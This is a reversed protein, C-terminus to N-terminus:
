IKNLLFGLIAGGVVILAANSKKFGFILMACLVAISWTKWDILIDKGLKITVGFMIGVAGINVADLFRATWTSKRLKPILPYLILMLIFSPLFIGVSAVIAGWVGQIQYGIFTATSLVPGPTFQGVAIANLLDPRTLWGLKNVLESDLYAVLVYGSGFIISGIKLFVFFLKTLTIKQVIVPTAVLLVAPLFPKINKKKSVNGSNLWIMGLLGAFLIATIPSIGFLTVIVVALGLVGLQWNKLAKKGLKYIAGLIIAIVAPKIGYLIPAIEPLAGFKVYLFALFGTIIVAPFIFCVGGIILGIIGARYYGCIIAMQTSNPGPILNIAGLLDMFYDRSMWKRKTVIEDEMMAIHAVPGGFGITGLKLFLYAVEKLKQFSINSM